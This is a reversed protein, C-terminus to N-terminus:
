KMKPHYTSSTLLPNPCQHLKKPCRHLYTTLSIEHYHSKTPLLKLLPIRSRSYCCSYQFIVVSYCPCVLVSQKRRVNHENEDDDTFLSQILRRAIVQESPEFEKLLEDARKRRALEKEYLVKRADELELRVRSLNYVASSLIRLITHYPHNPTDTPSESASFNSVTAQIAEDTYTHWKTALVQSVIVPAVGTLDTEGTVIFEPNPQGLSSDQPSGVVFLPAARDWMVSLSTSSGGVSKGKESKGYGRVSGDWNATGQLDQELQAKLTFYNGTVTTPKTNSTHGTTARNRRGKSPIEEPALPHSHVPTKSNQSSAM